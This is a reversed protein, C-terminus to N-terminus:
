RMTMECESGWRQAGGARHMYRPGDCPVGQSRREALHSLSSLGLTTPVWGLRGLEKNWELTQLAIGECKEDGMGNWRFGGVGEKGIGVGRVRCTAV